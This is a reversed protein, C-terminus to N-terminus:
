KLGGGVLGFMKTIVLIAGIIVVTGGVAAFLLFSEQPNFATFLSTAGDVMSIFVRSWIPSYESVTYSYVATVPNNIQFDRVQVTMNYTGREYLGFNLYFKGSSQWASYTGDSKPSLRYQLSDGDADYANVSVTFTENEVPISPNTSAGRIV